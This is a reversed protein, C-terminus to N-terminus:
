GEMRLFRRRGVSLVGPAAPADPDGVRTGDLYVGGQAVLRRAESRTVALGAAALVEVLSQGPQLRHVPMEAPAAGRRHVRTFEEGAAAAAEPSHFVAVIEGALRMKAEMPDALLATIEDKGLASLRDYYSRLAGDPVSMVKGYMDAPPTLIPIHNGLSKSMKVSGDTGPLIGVILAVNPQAGLAAMLRRSATVINFVQDSGGVQVDAKLHFADYAQLVPYFTEHLWVADGDEWRRRFNDRALFQQVSFRSALSIFDALGLRSLWEDNYAVRTRAPDLIRFAQEAYTRANERVRERELMQRAGDKDPDGILSTFTGVLFTVDHGLEQFQRLKRIPVTHGIHLDSTRPDFGCYVRLPRREERARLIRRELEAAMSEALAPDGYDTGQMLLEVQEKVGQGITEM